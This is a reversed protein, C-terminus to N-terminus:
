QELQIESLQEGTTLDFTVTRAATILFFKGDQLQGRCDEVSQCETSVVQTLGSSGIQYVLVHDIYDEGYILCIYNDGLYTLSLHDEDYGQPVSVVVNGRDLGSLALSLKLETRGAQGSLRVLYNGGANVTMIAEEEEPASSARGLASPDSLDLQYVQGDFGYLTYYFTNGDFRVTRLVNDRLFGEAKGLVRLNQDLIYLNSDNSTGYSTTLVRLMGDYENPPALTNLIGKVTTEETVTFGGSGFTIGSILTTMDRSNQQFLYLGKSGLYFSKGPGQIVQCNVLSGPDKSSYCTAVIYSDTGAQSIAIRNAEPLRAEGDTYLIPIYAAPNNQQASTDPYYRSFIYLYSGSIAAGVMTGDQASQAVLQPVGPNQVNYASVASLTCEGGSGSYSVTGVVFLIGNSYFCDTVATSVASMGSIEPKVFEVQIRGALLGSDASGQLISVTMSNQSGVYFYTGDSAMITRSNQQQLGDSSLGASLVSSSYQNVANQPTSAQQLASYVDAYDEGTNSPLTSSISPNIVVTTEERLEGSPLNGSGTGSTSEETQSVNVQGSGTQGDEETGSDSDTASSGGSSGVNGVASGGSISGNGTSPRSEVSSSPESGEESDVSPALNSEGNEEPAITLGGTNESPTDEQSVSNSVGTSPDITLGNELYQRIPRNVAALVAVFAGLVVAVRSVTRISPIRLWSFRRKAPKDPLRAMIMEPQLAMPVPTDEAQERLLRIFAQDEASLEPLSAGSTFKQDLDKKM